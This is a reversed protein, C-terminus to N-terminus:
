HITKSLSSPGQYRVRWLEGGDRTQSMSGPGFALYYLSGDRSVALDIPQSIGGAFPAIVKTELDLARIWGSCMDSFFYKGVYKAPFNVQPPDYVAGGTVLCDATIAPTHPYAYFPDRYQANHQACAGECVAWGYNTGAALEDIEEWDDEGADSVLIMGPGALNAMKFPNRFGYAYIEPLIGPQGVFPNDTPISGDPNLRLVKGLLNDLHQAQEPYGGDGTTVYLKGDNGFTLAGGHHGLNEFPLDVLYILRESGPLVHDGEVTLRSVRDVRPRVLSTYFVYLYQNDGFHPDLTLGYLGQDGQPSVPLQVLPDSLLRDDKVIRVVGHQEAVFIRGDPAVALAVPKALNAAVRTEFFGPLLRTSHLQRLDTDRSWALILVLAVCGGYALSRRALRAM